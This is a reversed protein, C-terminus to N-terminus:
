SAPCLRPETTTSTTPRHRTAPHSAYAPRVMVSDGRAREFWSRKGDPPKAHQAAEHHAVVAAFLELANRVLGFRDLLLRVEKVWDLLLGNREAAACAEHLVPVIASARQDGAFTAANVPGSSTTRTSLERLLDFADVIPRCVAEYDNIAALHHALAPSARRTLGRLYAPEDLGTVFKGHQALANLHEHTLEHTSRLRDHLVTRERKGIRSPHLHNALRNWFASPRAVTHGADIGKRM